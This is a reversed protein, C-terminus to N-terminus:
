SHHLPRTPSMPTPYGGRVDIAPESHGERLWPSPPRSIAAPPLGTSLRAMRLETYGSTVGSILAWKKSSHYRLQQSIPTNGIDSVKIDWAPVIIDSYWQYRLNQSIPTYGVDSTSHYRLKESIVAGRIYARSNMLQSILIYQYWLESNNPNRPELYRVRYWLKLVRIDSCINIDCSRIDSNNLYWLEQYWVQHKEVGAPGPKETSGAQEIDTPPGNHLVNVQIWNDWGALASAARGTCYDENGSIGAINYEVVMTWVIPFLFGHLSAAPRCPGLRSVIVPVAEAQASDLQECFDM